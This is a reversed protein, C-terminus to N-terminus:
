REKWWAEQNHLEIFVTNKMVIVDKKGDDNKRILV